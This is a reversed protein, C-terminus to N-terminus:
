KVSKSESTTLIISWFCQCCSRVQTNIFTTKSTLLVGLPFAFQSVSNWPVSYNFTNSCEVPDCGLVTPQRTKNELVSM